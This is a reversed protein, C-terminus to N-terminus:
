RRIALWTKLESDEIRYEGRRRTAGIYGKKTLQRIVNQVQGSTVAKKGVEKALAKM